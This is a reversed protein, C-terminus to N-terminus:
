ITRRNPISSAMVTEESFWPSLLIKIQVAFAWRLMWQGCINEFLNERVTGWISRVLNFTQVTTIGRVFTEHSMAILRADQRVNKHTGFSRHRKLNKVVNPQPTHRSPDAHRTCSQRSESMREYDNGSNERAFTQFIPYKYSSNLM